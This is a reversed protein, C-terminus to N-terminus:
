AGPIPNPEKWDPGAAIALKSLEKNEVFKLNALTGAVRIDKKPYWRLYKQMINDTSLAEASKAVEAFENGVSIDHHLLCDVTTLSFSLLM